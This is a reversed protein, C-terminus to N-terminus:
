FKTSDFQCFFRREAGSVKAYNGPTIGSLKLIYQSTLQPSLASSLVAVKEGKQYGIRVNGCFCFLFLRGFFNKQNGRYLM